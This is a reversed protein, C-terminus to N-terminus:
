FTTLQLVDGDRKFRNHCVQRNKCTSENVAQIGGRTDDCMEQQTMIVCYPITRLKAQTIVGRSSYFSAKMKSSVGYQKSNM